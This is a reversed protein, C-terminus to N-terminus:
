RKIGLRPTLSRQFGTLKDAFDRALRTQLQGLGPGARGADPRNLADLVGDIKALVPEVRRRADDGGEAVALRLRRRLTELPARLEAPEVPTAVGVRVSAELPALQQILEIKEPQRDPVLMLASEVKAMLISIGAVFGFERIGQFDALM